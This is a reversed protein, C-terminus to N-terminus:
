PRSHWEFNSIDASIRKGGDDKKVDFIRDDGPAVEVIYPVGHTFRKSRPGKYTVWDGALWEEPPLVTTPEALAPRSHWTFNSIHWGNEDGDDDAVVQAAFDSVDARLTYNKGVTFQGKRRVVATVLDGALWELNPQVADYHEGDGHSSAVRDVRAEDFDDQIRTPLSIEIKQEAGHVDTRGRAIEDTLADDAESEVSIPDLTASAATPQFPTGVEAKPEPRAQWMFWTSPLVVSEGNDDTLIRIKRPDHVGERNALTYGKYYSFAGAGRAWTVRRVEDGEQWLEEDLGPKVEVTGPIREVWQLYRGVEEATEFGSSMYHEFLFVRQGSRDMRIDNLNKRLGSDNGFVDGIRWNLADTMDHKNGHDDVWTPRADDEATEVAEDFAAEAEAAPLPCFSWHLYPDGMKEIGCEPCFKPVPTQDVRLTSAILRARVSADVDPNLPPMSTDLQVGSKGNAQSAACPGEHGKGRSCTWGAPPVDCFPMMDGVFRDTDWTPNQAFDQLVDVMDAVSMCYLTGDDNLTTYDSQAMHERVYMFADTTHDDRAAQGQKAILAHIVYGENIGYDDQVHQTCEADANADVGLDIRRHYLIIGATYVIVGLLERERRDHDPMDLGETLKKVVQFAMGKDTNFLRSITQMHQEHFPNGRAHREAGKGEACQDYADQLVSALQEYGPVRMM